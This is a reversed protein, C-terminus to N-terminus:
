SYFEKTQNKQKARLASSKNQNNHPGSRRKDRPQVVAITASIRFASVSAISLCYWDLNSRIFCFGSPIFIKWKGFILNPNEKPSWALWRFWANEKSWKRIITRVHSANSALDPANFALKSKIFCCCWANTADFSAFTSYRTTFNFCAFSFSRRNTHWNWHWHWKKGNQEQKFKLAFHFNRFWWISCPNSSSCCSCRSSVSCFSSWISDCATWVDWEFTSVFPSRWITLAATRTFQTFDSVFQHSPLM